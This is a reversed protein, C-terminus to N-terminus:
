FLALNKHNFPCIELIEGGRLSNGFCADEKRSFNLLLRVPEFVDNGDCVINDVTASAM